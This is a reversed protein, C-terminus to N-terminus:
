SIFIFSFLYIFLFCKFLLVSQLSPCQFNKSLSIILRFVFFKDDCCINRKVDELLILSFLPFYTRKDLVGIIELDSSTYHIVILVM